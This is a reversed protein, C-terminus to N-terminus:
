PTPSSSPEPCVQDAYADIADGGDAFAPDSFATTLEGLLGTMQPSDAASQKVQLAVARSAGLFGQGAAPIGPLAAPARGAHWSV